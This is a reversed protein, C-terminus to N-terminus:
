MGFGRGVMRSVVRKEREGGGDEEGEDRMEGEGRGRKGWGGDGKFDGRGRM